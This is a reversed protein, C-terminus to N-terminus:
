RVQRRLTAMDWFDVCHRIRDGSFEFLTAGRFEFRKGTAPVGDLEGDNTGSFLWEAGASDGEGFQKTLDMRLDSSSSVWDVLFQGVEGPGHASIKLVVDEYHCDDTFLGALQEPDHSSWGEAFRRITESEM